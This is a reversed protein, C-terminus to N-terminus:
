ELPQYEEKCSEKEKRNENSSWVIGINQEDWIKSKQNKTNQDSYNRPKRETKETKGM